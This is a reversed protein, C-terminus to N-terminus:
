LCCKLCKKAQNKAKWAISGEHVIGKGQTEFGVLEEEPDKKPDEKGDGDDSDNSDDGVDSGPANSPGAGEYHSFGGDSSDGTSNGLEKIMRREWDAGFSGFNKKLSSRFKNWRYLHPQVAREFWAAPEGRFFMCTTTVKLNKPVFLAKFNQSM